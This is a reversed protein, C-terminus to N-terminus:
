DPLYLADCLGRVSNGVYIRTATELDLRTLVAERAQNQELLYQRFTGPLLGCLLAPTLLEGDREIFLNYITTETLEGKENFLVVDDSDSRRAQEYVDRCTTKHFLLYNSSDVPERALRLRVPTSIAALPTHELSVQGGRSLRLRVRLPHDAQLSRLQHRIEEGPWPYGLAAASAALRGLHLDELYVGELPSYRCTELLEFDGRGHNLIGAKTACEEWETVASSDWVIGGGVGYEAEASHKNIVLTRIAVSFRADGGPEVVGIAGTYVGRPSNELERIIEMTRVRPAGTVSACPFLAAFIRALSAPSRASVSSVQQWVTPFARIAFLSDPRVSGTEAIRGLDNRMMDVIMLNEARDKASCALANRFAEDEGPFRGRPRTGKMPEVRLSQGKREFFLEPSVSCIAYEDTEILVALPSPQARYLAGFVAGASGTVTGRLRHTINVQYTDGSELYRHIRRIREGFEAETIDPTLTQSVDGDPPEVERATQFIAFAALPLQGPEHHVLAPDIAGSAEYTVFGIAQMGAQCRAEVSELLTEVEAPKRALLVEAPDMVELWCKRGTHYYRAQFM